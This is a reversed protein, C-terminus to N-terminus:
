AERWTETGLHVAFVDAGDYLTVEGPALGVAKQRTRRPWRAFTDRPLLRTWARPASDLAYLLPRPGTSLVVDSVFVGAQLERLMHAWFPHGRPAAMLANQVVEGGHPSEALAV